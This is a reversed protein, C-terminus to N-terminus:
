AVLSVSFAGLAVVNMDGVFYQLPVTSSISMGHYVRYSKSALFIIPTHYDVSYM